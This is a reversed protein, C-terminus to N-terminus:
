GDVAGFKNCALENGGFRVPKGKPTLPKAKLCSGLKVPQGEWEPRKGTWHKCAHCYTGAPGSAAFHAMGNVARFSM